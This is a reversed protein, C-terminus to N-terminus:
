NMLIMVERLRLLDVSPEIRIDAYLPAAPQQRIYKIKGLRYGLLNPPWDKDDLVIMDNEAIGLDKVQEM